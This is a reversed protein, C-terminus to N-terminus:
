GANSQGPPHTNDPGSPKAPDQSRCERPTQRARRLPTDLLNILHVYRTIIPARSDFWFRESHILFAHVERRGWPHLDRQRGNLRKNNIHSRVPSSESSSYRARVIPDAAMGLCSIAVRRCKLTMLCRVSTTEVTLFPGSPVPCIIDFSARLFSLGLPFDQAILGDRCYLISTILPHLVGISSAAM